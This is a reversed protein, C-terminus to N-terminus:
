GVPSVVRTGAAGPKGPCRRGVAQAVEGTLDVGVPGDGDPGLGRRHAAATVLPGVRVLEHRDGVIEASLRKGGTLVELGNHVGLVADDDAADGERRAGFTPRGPNVKQVPVVSVSVVSPSTTTGNPLLQVSMSTM